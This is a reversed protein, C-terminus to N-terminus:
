MKKVIDKIDIALRRKDVSGAFSEGDWTQKILADKLRQSYPNHQLAHSVLRQLEEESSLSEKAGDVPRPPITCFAIIDRLAKISEDDKTRDAPPRSAENNAAMFSRLQFMKRRKMLMPNKAKGVAKLMVAREPLRMKTLQASHANMAERFAEEDAIIISPSDLPIDRATKDNLWPHELLETVTMRQAPEVKLLSAIVEKAEASIKSWEKDPYDYDGAMIRRRMGQSLQKRPVESYFPPYGCLMIYIVVGLSWMDCSKDYTYPKTLYPFRGSKQARHIRQAELVQPSVYYPTFQPTVLDGRDIKAFGFDALKIIVEESKDLLLLNEPKLDRHAVNFSHCHYVALAIQRTFNVAEKETFRRKTRVLEFLEGGEMLEMVMLVRPVPRMEGPFQFSIAYVDVVSVIHSHESCLYHVKAETRAKPSDHLCKLAFQKGTTQSTCCRVPGSIGSGLKRTWDIIYDDEIPTNKFQLERRVEAM